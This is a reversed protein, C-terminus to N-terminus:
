MEESTQMEERLQRLARKLLGAVATRTRGMHDAIQMLSWGHWHQLVLAKLQSDPLKAMAQALLLTREERLWRNEPLSDDTAVLAELRLSSQEVAAVLSLERRVDRKDSTLKRIEDMLNNALVRRLWAFQQDAALPLKSDFAQHAELLTQQVVGSLDIKGKLRPDLNVQVLLRLYERYREWPIVHNSDCREM